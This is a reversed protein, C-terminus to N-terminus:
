PNKCTLITRELLATLEEPRESTYRYGGTKLAMDSTLAFDVLTRLQEESLSSALPRLGRVAFFHIGAAAAIDKDSRIGSQLAAFVLTLNKLMNLLIAWLAYPDEGRDLSHRVFSLAEEAKGSGLLDTLRWIVQSGSPVALADVDDISIAETSYLFLKKLETDVVQQDSGVILILREIADNDIKRKHDSSQKKIWAKLEGINLPPFAHQTASGLLEKTVGLRKDPTPEVFVLIVQPHMSSLISQLEEKSIKPIGEVVVLRREAIFPMTATADLLDPMSFEKTTFTVLNEPGHKEAFSKKWRKLEQRLAYDNEGSFLHLQEMSVPDLM